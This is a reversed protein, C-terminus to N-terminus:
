MLFINCFFVVFSFFIPYEEGPLTSYAVLMDYYSRQFELGDDHLISGDTVTSRMPGRVLPTTRQGYDINDGRCFQFLFIKPKGNLLPCSKNNFMSLIEESPISRGDSTYILTGENHNGGKGHSMLAVVTSDAYQHEDFKTYLEIAEHTDVKSLNTRLTVTYGLQQLLQDLYLVDKESGIRPSFNQFNEYNIILAQGRPKINRNPYINQGLGRIETGIKVEINLLSYDPPASDTVTPLLGSSPVHTVPEMYNPPDLVKRRYAENLSPTSDIAFANANNSSMAPEVPVVAPISPQLGLRSRTEDLYRIVNTQNTAMLANVFQEYALPGRRILMFCLELKPNENRLIDRIMEDSFVRYNKLLYLFQQTMELSRTISPLSGNITDIDKKDM